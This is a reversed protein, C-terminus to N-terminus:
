IMNFKRLLELQKQLKDPDSSSDVTLNVIVGAKREQASDTNNRTEDKPQSQHIPKLQGTGVGDKEKVDSEELKESTNGNITAVAGANLLTISDGDRTGLGAIEASEFFLSVCEEVSEPHVKLTLAHQRVKAKTVSDGNYTEFIQSFLKSFRFARQLLAAKEGQVAAGISKALETARYGAPDGELLGFQKLASVRVKGEPGANGFVGALITKEPQPGVHTKSVLKESYELAQKLSIRPFITGGKRGGKPAKSKALKEAEAM